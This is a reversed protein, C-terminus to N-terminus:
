RRGAQASSSREARERVGLLMKREMIFHVPELLMVPVVTPLPGPKFDARFDAVLRCSSGDIPNLHFIWVGSFVDPDLEPADASATGEISVTLVLSRHTDIGTVTWGVAHNPEAAIFDGLALNQFEPVIRDASHIDLNFLNELWDYSYFGGRGQGIQVLWQWVEEAPANITIARRAQYQPNAAASQGPLEARVEEESAGWNRMWSRVFTGYLAVAAIALFIATGVRRLLV